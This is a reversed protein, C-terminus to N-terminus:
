SFARGAVLGEYHGSPAPRWRALMSRRLAEARGINGDRAIERVAPPVLKVTADLDVAWHSVPLGGAQAYIFVRALGSLPQSSTAASAATNCGVRRQARETSDNTGRSSGALRQRAQSDAGSRPRPRAPMM